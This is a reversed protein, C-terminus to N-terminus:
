FWVGFFSKKNTIKWHHLDSLKKKVLHHRRGTIFKNNIFIVVVNIRM